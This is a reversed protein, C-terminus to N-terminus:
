ASWPAPGAKRDRNWGGRACDFLSSRRQLVSPRWRPTCSSRWSSGPEVVATIGLRPCLSQASTSSRASRPTKKQATAANANWRTARKKTRGNTQHVKRGRFISNNSSRTSHSSAATGVLAQQQGLCLISTRHNDGIMPPRTVPHQKRSSYKDCVEQNTRGKGSSSKPANSTRRNQPQIFTAPGTHPPLYSPVPSALSMTRLRPSTILRLKMNLSACAM